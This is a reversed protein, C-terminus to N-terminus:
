EQGGKSFMQEAYSSNNYLQEWDFDSRVRHIEIAEQSALILREAVKHNSYRKFIESGVCVSNISPNTLITTAAEVVAEISREFFNVGNLGLFEQLAPIDNPLLVPVGCALSEIIGIGFTEQFSPFFVLDTIRLLEGLQATSLSGQLFSVSEQLRLKDRLNLLYKYYTRDIIPGTITVHIPMIRELKSSVELLMEINKRPYVAVPYSIQKVERLIFHEPPYFMSADYSHPLVKLKRSDIEFQGYVEKYASNEFETACIHIDWLPRLLIESQIWFTDSTGGRSVSIGFGILNIILITDKIPATMLIPLACFNAFAYVVDLSLRNIVDKLAYSTLLPLRNKRKLYAIGILPHRILASLLGVKIITLGSDTSYGSLGSGMEILFVEHGAKQLAKALPVVISKGSGPSMINESILGFRM